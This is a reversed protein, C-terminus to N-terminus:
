YEEEVILVPVMGGGATVNALETQSLRTFAGAVEGRFLMPDLDVLQDSFAVSGDPQLFPFVERSTGVKIQALYDGKLAEDIAKSWEPESMAWGIYIGKGGYEDNPKLVLREQNAKIFNLLEVNKGEFTTAKDEVRRTWPIHREILSREEATFIHAFQEDTLVGFLLKKHLLKGRFSNVLCVAGAEYAKILDQCEDVHELMENVLLRKYILDIRFDEKRLEGNVFRLERPDAIITTYGEQEFYDKCLEFERQTPLGTYDVIAIQPKTNTGSFEKYESLLVDLLRERARFPTLRFRKQFEKMVELSLFIDSAVDSYLPGAPTEANLEVFQFTDTLFSDLRALPSFASTGPDISVLRREIDTLGLYTQLAPNEIALKGVKQIATWLGQCVKQLSELDERRLFYPRLYPSLMRGGFILNAEDMKQCLEEKTQDLLGPRGTLMENYADVAAQRVKIMM